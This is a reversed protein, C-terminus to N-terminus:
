RIRRTQNNTNILVIQLDSGRVIGGVQIPDPQYGGGMYGGGTYDNTNSTNSRAGAAAQKNASAGGLMGAVLKLAIGAAFYGTALGQGGPMLMFASGVMFAMNAAESALKAFFSYLDNFSSEAGVLARGIDEAFTMAFSLGLQQIAKKLVDAKQADEDIKQMFGEHAMAATGINAALETYSGSLNEITGSLASLDGDVTTVDFKPGTWFDKQAQIAAKNAEMQALYKDVSDSVMWEGGSEGKPSYQEKIKQLNEQHTKELKILDDKQKQWDFFEATTLSKNQLRRVDFLGQYDDVSKKRADYLEKFKENEKRVENEQETGIYDAIEENVKKVANAHDQLAKTAKETNSSSSFMKAGFVTLATIGLSLATQWSFIAGALTKFMSPAQQGSAIMERNAIKLRNIEDVLMPINNSIAMFGTQMSYTFAPLERTVQNISHGLTNFGSTARTAMQPEIGSAKFISENVGDIKSKLAAAQATADKFAASDEGLALAINKADKITNRYAQNLEDIATKAPKTKTPIKQLEDVVGKMGSILGSADVGVPINIGNKNYDAM